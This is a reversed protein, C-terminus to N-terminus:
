PIPTSQAAAAGAAISQVCGDCCGDSFAAASAFGEPSRAPESGIIAESFLVLALLSAALMGHRLRDNTERSHDM